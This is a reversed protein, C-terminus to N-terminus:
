VLMILALVPRPAPPSLLGSDVDLVLVLLGLGAPWRRVLSPVSSSSAALTVEADAPLRHLAPPLLLPLRGRPNAEATHSASQLEGPVSDEKGVVAEWRV